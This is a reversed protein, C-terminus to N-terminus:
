IERHRFAYAALITLLVLYVGGYAAVRGCLAAELVDLQDTLEFLQFNPFVLGIGGALGQLLWNGTRGYSEQALYQLHCIVFVLFSAVVTYLLSRAFCAILLTWAALVSLKLWQACAVACLKLYPLGAVGAYQEPQAARLALERQWLVLLLLGTLLACFIGLLALMALLKGVIFDTRRVPKALLTLATRSELEGLFLQATAAVTLVAGFVAMAGFGFDAIFKLEPAGFNFERLGRVSVVLVGAVLVFAAVLKQRVAEALTNRAILGATRPSFRLFNM